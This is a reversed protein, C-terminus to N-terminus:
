NKLHHLAIQDLFNGQEARRRIHAKVEDVSNFKTPNTISLTKTEADLSWGFLGAHLEDCETWPLNLTHSM